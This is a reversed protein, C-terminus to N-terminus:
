LSKFCEALVRRFRIVQDAEESKVGTIIAAPNAGLTVLSVEWLRVESLHRVGNLMKAKVSDFGVSLGKVIGRKLLGYAKQAVPSSDIALEGRIALGASTDTLKGLGIPETLDHQWLIPVEGGRDSFTKTFSGPLIVDGQLDVNGYVACFGEFIGQQDLSKLELKFDRQM